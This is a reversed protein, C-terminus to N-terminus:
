DIAARLPKSLRRTPPDFIPSQSPITEPIYCRAQQQRNTLTLVDRTVNDQFDFLTLPSDGSPNPDVLRSRGQVNLSDRVSQAFAGHGKSVVRQSPGHVSAVFTIVNKRYLSRAWEKLARPAQPSEPRKEHIGDVLLMVKCGYEVLRGLVDAIREAPVPHAAPMGHGTDTTLIVGPGQRDFDILHSEIWVFVTDGNGLENKQRREDLIQLERDIRETTAEPGILTQVVVNQFRPKGYPAGLFASLDRLDEVAYPIRPYTPDRSIFQDTGFALIVLQPPPLVPAPTDRPPQAIVDFSTTREKGRDNVASVSVKRPGPNLNLVVDRSVEALAPELAIEQERGGDVLVRITRILGRGAAAEETAARIRLALPGGPVVLPDFAPRAPSLIEVNPLPNEAVVPAPAPGQVLAPAVVLPGPAVPAAPAVPPQAVALALNDRDATQWFRLLADPRRLENEFRDFMFYDTPEGDNLRNRHWGLYRRDGLTSTEYYGQPTWLVWERDLAPFLTLAPSDRKTTVLEVPRGNRTVVFEININPLVADLASLDTAPKANVFLKEIQDGKEMGMMEAFGRPVIEAVVAKGGAGPAFRAGLPAPVDMGALRWLRVTQDPSGTALWQGDPSPALSYVPGQHGALLRTRRGNDLRYLAVGSECGVAALPGPHGPGPPIFSFSWWRRDLSRDFTLPFGQGQANIVDIRYPDVPRFRWGNWTLVARSLEGPAFPTLRRGSLDFDEYETPPDALDPRKRAFGIASSDQSFGVDWVSSGQGALEIPPANLVALNHITIAQADGGASALRNSDPTFACAYVLNTTRALNRQVTGTPMTRLEVDCEVRPREEIRGLGFSVISTALRKGDPSIALAEVPGQRNTDTPFFTEGALTAADYRVLHGNERGIVVYRGDPSVALANIAEGGPNGGRPNQPGPRYTARAIIVRRSIDWLIVQGDAGGSVLRNGDPLYAVANVAGTHGRQLLAVTQRTQVNWVRVTADDSASALFGGRPHFALSKVIGLHGEPNPGARGGPLTPLVDGTSRSNAGPFRFLGIEGRSTRFGFGAVALLRQGERDVVPSLASAYIAGAYGRWIRPRITRVVAPHVVRLDWVNVIKDQGASLLFGGDPPVFILGRVPASHGGTNVIPIPQTLTRMDAQGSARDATTGVLLGLILV